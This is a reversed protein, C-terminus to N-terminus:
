RTPEVPAFIAAACVLYGRNRLGSRGSKQKRRRRAAARQKPCKGRGVSSTSRSSTTRCTRRARRSAGACRSAPKTCRRRTPRVRAPAVLLPRAGRGGIQLRLDAAALFAPACQAPHAARLGEGQGPPPRLRHLPLDARGPAQLRRRHVRDRQHGRRDAQEPLLPRLRRVPEGMRRQTMEGLRKTRWFPALQPGKDDPM